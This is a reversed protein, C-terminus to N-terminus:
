YVWRLWNQSASNTYRNTIGPLLCFMIRLGILIITREFRFSMNSITLDHHAQRVMVPCILAGKSL